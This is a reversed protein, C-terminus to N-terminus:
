PQQFRDDARVQALNHLQTAYWGITDTIRVEFRPVYPKIDLVPTGDILDLGAVHIVEATVVGEKVSTVVGTLQNRASIKM